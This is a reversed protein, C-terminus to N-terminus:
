RITGERERTAGRRSLETGHVVSDRLRGRDSYDTINMQKPVIFVNSEEVTTSVVQQEEHAVKGAVCPQAPLADRTRKSLKAHWRHANGAVV